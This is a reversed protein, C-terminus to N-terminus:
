CFCTLMLYGGRLTVSTPISKSTCESLTKVSSVVEYLFLITVQSLWFFHSTRLRTDLPISFTGPVLNSNTDAPVDDSVCHFCKKRKTLRLRCSCMLFSFVIPHFLTCILLGTAMLLDTMSCPSRGIVTLPIWQKTLNSPINVQLVSFSVIVHM